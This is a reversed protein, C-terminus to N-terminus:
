EQESDDASVPEVLLESGSVGTVTVRSGVPCDKGRAIWLTDGLRIRGAGNVIPQVVEARRGVYSALRRNLTSDEAPAAKRIFKRGLFLAAFALPVFILSQTEWSAIGFIGAISGAALAGLGIWLLFVGPVLMELVVLLLGALCWHWWLLTFDAM